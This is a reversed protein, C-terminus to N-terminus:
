WVGLIDVTFVLTSNAPISGQATKGYGLSPPIVLLVRSGVKKGALGQVWGKITSNLAFKSAAGRDYSSDIKKGNSWLVGYYNIVVTDSSKVKQGSGEIVYDSVLKTPAKKGKPITITPQKGDTNTGVKPLSADTQPVTTGKATTPFSRTGVIDVVFVLTSNPPITSVAQKGYGLTPPIVMEVRSGVTKGVLAKDWGKIVQSKGIVTTIPKGQDYSNDFVTGKTYLQGLYNATIIDGAKVVKGKGVIATRTLLQGPAKGTGKAITPKAGFKAGATIKPVGGSSSDKSGGGCAAALLVLPVVLATLLRRTARGGRQPSRRAGRGADSASV